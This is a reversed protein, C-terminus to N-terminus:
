VRTACLCTGAIGLHLNSVGEDTGREGDSTKGQGFVSAYPQKKNPLQSDRWGYM